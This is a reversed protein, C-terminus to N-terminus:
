TTMKVTQKPAPQQVRKEIEGNRRCILFPLVPPEQDPQQEQHQDERDSSSSSDEINSPDSAYQDQGDRQNSVNQDQQENTNDQETDQEIIHDGMILRKRM